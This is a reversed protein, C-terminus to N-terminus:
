KEVGLIKQIEREADSCMVEIDTSFTSYEPLTREKIKLIWIRAVALAQKLRVNEMELKTYADQQADLKQILPRVKANAREAIVEYCQHDGYWLNKFDEPKFFKETM